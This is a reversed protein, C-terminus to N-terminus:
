FGDISATGTMESESGVEIVGIGDYYFFKGERYGVCTSNSYCRYIMGDAMQVNDTGNQLLDPYNQEAWDFVRNYTTATTSTSTKIATQGTVVNFTVPVTGARYSWPAQQDSGAWLGLGAAQAEAQLDPLNSGAEMYKTYAWACGQSVMQSGVDQGDAKVDAITRGYRDTGDRCISVSDGIIMRSLCATASSGFAQSREPADIQGVRIKETQGIENRVVFTDGDIVRLVSVQSCTSAPPKIATEPPSLVPEVYLNATCSATSGGNSGACSWSWPGNGGVSTSNGSTCLDTTPTTLVSIGNSLGCQGSVPTVHLNAVCSASSGGNSGTCSWSWPGNGSVSTSNGSSCLNTTPTTFVSAGNSSGCRGSVPAIYLSAACSATTGGNSGICSWSWPGSGLVTSSAGSICLGTSPKSEYQGNNAVGCYGNVPTPTTTGVHCTYNKNICTNGCPKGTTCIKRVLWRQEMVSYERAVVPTEDTFYDAPLNDSDSAAGTEACVFLVLFASFMTLGFRLM